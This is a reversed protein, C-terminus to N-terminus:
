ISDGTKAMKLFSWAYHLIVHMLNWISHKQYTEMFLSKLEHSLSTLYTLLKRVRRMGCLNKKRTLVTLSAVIRIYNKILVRSFNAFELFCQVNCLSRLISWGIIIQIKKQGYPKWERLHHLGFVWCITPPFPVKRKQCLTRTAVIKKSFILIDNLYIVVFSDSYECFINNMMHRFITLANTLGFPM